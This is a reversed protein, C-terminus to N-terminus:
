MSSRYTALAAAYDENEPDLEMCRQVTGMALTARERESGNGYRYQIQHLLSMRSALWRNLDAQRDDPSAYYDSDGGDGGDGDVLKGGESMDGCEEECECDEECQAESVACLEEFTQEAGRVAAYALKVAFAKESSSLAGEDYNVIFNAVDHAWDAKLDAPVTRFAQMFSHRSGSMHGMNAQTNAIRSFGEFRVSGSANSEISALVGTLDVEMGSDDAPWEIQHMLEDVVVKAGGMTEGEPDAKRIARITKDHNRWDNCSALKQALQYQIELNEPSKEVAKRHSRVTNDESHIRYLQELLPEAPIFGTILEDIDGNSMAVVIAPFQEINYRKVLSTMRGGESTYKLCVVDSLAEVVDPSTFTEAILKNSYDSWDPAFAILMMADDASAAKVAKNYGDGFWEITADGATAMPASLALLALLRPFQISRLM